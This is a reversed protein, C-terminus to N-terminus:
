QYLSCIPSPTELHRRLHANGQLTLKSCEVYWDCFEHWVFHYLRDAADNLRFESLASHTENAVQQFRSRIWRDALSGGTPAEPPVSFGELNMHLFRAANWIKNLFFRYGQIRENSLKLDRGPGGLSALTFRLADAGYEKISDLPDIVNGKSKSMKQGKEDRVMGHLYVHKFPVKGTFKLGMMIMRAVWFFIIDYGTEMVTTPYFEKLDKTKDPWGLTSFPWLASSFWTDLVDPDQTLSTSQCEPCKAVDTRSVIIEHCEDCYWAPIRHGWWLQRSICWDRINEMWNFYIKEWSKPLIEIEGRKVVDIAPKALSAMKMFWQTSMMPEVITSCRQCLGVSLTHPEIKGLLGKAQLDQVVRERCEFRDLGKYPGAHENMTGDHAMVSVIPLSHRKGIEFDNPDHGPTIKLCGTGFARDVYPDAIVPIPRDLLPLLVTKGILHKYRDDEPHVAIATDGLMTEPRTTAVTVHEKPNDVIPYHIEWFFSARPEHDVELDSLATHCRPCWNVLYEGRYILGEEYLSVFVERVARCLGEDLTFRDRSWDVSCGFAKLQDVIRQSYTNVWEWVKKEFAERGIQHRDAGEKSLEKEVVNQTAIGAHDKGPLWLTKYGSMRKWRVLVDEITYSLAHGQHLSGTVNPPPIVISFVEKRDPTTEPSFLNNDLWFQYWKGETQSPDYGKPLEM